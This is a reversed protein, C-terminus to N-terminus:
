ADEFAWPEFSAPWMYGLVREVPYWSSRVADGQNGGLLLVRHSEARELLAVHGKWSGPSERWLVVVAGVPLRGKSSLRVFAGAPGGMVLDQSSRETNLWSRASRTVEPPVILGAKMFCYAVASSCWAVEDAMGKGDVVAHMTLIRQNDEAGPIERTGILSQMEHFWPPSPIRPHIPFSM